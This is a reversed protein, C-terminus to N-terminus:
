CCSVIGVGVPNVRDYYVSGANVHCGIVIIMAMIRLFEVSTDRKDM